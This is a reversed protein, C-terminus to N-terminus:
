LLNPFMCVVYIFVLVYLKCPDSVYAVYIISVHLTECGVAKRGTMGTGMLEWKWLCTVTFASVNRFDAALTVRGFTGKPTPCDV